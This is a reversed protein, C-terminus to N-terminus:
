SHQYLAEAERYRGQMTYIDALQDVATATLAPETAVNKERVELLEQLIEQAESYRAQEELFMVLNDFAATLYPNEPGNIKRYAALAERYLSEVQAYNHGAHYWAALDNLAKAYRPDLVGYQSAQRLANRLLDEQQDYRPETLVPSSGDMEVSSRQSYASSVCFLVSVLTAICRDKM